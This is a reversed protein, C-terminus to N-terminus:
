KYKTWSLEFYFENDGQKMEPTRFKLRDDLIQFYRYHEKSTWNPLLSVVVNVWIKDDEIKWKGSYSLYTEFAKVKEQATAMEASGVSFNERNSAMVAVTMFNEQSFILTGVPQKGYPHLIRNKKDILEFNSLVWTGILKDSTDNMEM